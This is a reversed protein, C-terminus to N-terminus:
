FPPTIFIDRLLKIVLTSLVMERFVNVGALDVSDFSLNKRKWLIWLNLGWFDFSLDICMCIYVVCVVRRCQFYHFLVLFYFLSNNRGEQTFPVIYMDLSLPHIHYM